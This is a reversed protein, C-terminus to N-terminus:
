RVSLIEYMNTRIMTVWYQLQSTMFIQTKLILERKRNEALYLRPLTYFVPCFLIQDMHFGDTLLVALLYSMNNSSPQM